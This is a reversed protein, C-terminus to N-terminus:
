PTKTWGAWGNQQILGLAREGWIKYGVLDFHHNDSMPLMDTPIISSRPIKRQAIRLQERAAANDPFTPAFKETAGMEWDSMLFPIDPDGLDERMEAAIGAICENFRPLNARDPFVETLALMTFIGGFTVKGKLQKAPGMVIDYLIAGRRYSRCYGARSGDHGHGISVMVSDPERAMSLAARLISMGPGARGRTIHDGSLPEKAALFSGPMTYAWLRPHTEFHFPRLNAPADARGAMNSHGIHLFVIVKERPLRKGGVVIGDVPAPAPPAPAAGPSAADPSRGPPGASRADVGADAAAPAPGEPDVNGPPSPPAPAPDPAPAGPTPGRGERSVEIPIEVVGSCSTSLLLAALPLRAPLHRFLAAVGLWELLRRQEGTAHLSWM